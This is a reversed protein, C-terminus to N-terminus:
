GHRQAELQIEVVRSAIPGWTALDTCLRDMEAGDSYHGAFTLWWAGADTPPLKIGAHACFSLIGTEGRDLVLDAFIESLVGQPDGRPRAKRARPAKSADDKTMMPRGM